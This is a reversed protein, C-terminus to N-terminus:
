GHVQQPTKIDARGWVKIHKYPKIMLRLNHGLQSYNHRMLITHSCYLLTSRISLTCTIYKYMSYAFKNIYMYMHFDVNQNTYYNHDHVYMYLVHIISYTSIHVHVVLCVIIIIIIVQLYKWGLSFLLGCRRSWRSTRVIPDVGKRRWMWWPRALQESHASTPDNLAGDSAVVNLLSGTYLSDNSTCLLFSNFLILFFYPNLTLHFHLKITTTINEM